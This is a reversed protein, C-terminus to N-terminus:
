SRNQYIPSSPPAQSVVVAEKDNPIKIWVSDGQKLIPQPRVRHRRDFHQKQKEKVREDTERFQKAIKENAVHRNPLTPLKTRLVRGM